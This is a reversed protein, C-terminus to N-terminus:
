AEQTNICKISKTCQWFHSCIQLYFEKNGKSNGVRSYFSIAENRSQLKYDPNLNSKQSKLKIEEVSSDAKLDLTACACSGLTVRIVCQNLPGHMQKFISESVTVQTATYSYNLSIIIRPGPYVFTITYKHHGSIQTISSSKNLPM